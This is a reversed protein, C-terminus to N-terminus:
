TFVELLLAIRDTFKTFIGSPVFCAAACACLFPANRNGSQYVHM